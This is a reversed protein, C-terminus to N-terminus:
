SALRGLHKRRLHGKEALWLLTDRLTDELPRAHVGLDLTTSTTDFRTDRLALEIAERDAPLRRDGPLVRNVREVAFAAPRLALGPLEAHPLRRGTLKEITGFLLKGDVHHGPVVYRRPGKGPEITAAVVEAVERVDVYHAGGKRPWVPNRGSAIWTLLEANTGFYPDHPGWVGGPYVSVVPSGDAQHRRVLVESARKSAAYPLDVDGLPLDPGTGGRRTLAVTSSVHVVPDLGRAVAGGVVLETARENTGLVEDARAPDLSFVAAAHVVADMGDLARQVDREDLVDGIVLDTVAVRLPALSTAVQEPRRVLMRVEHGRDILAAVVFAGVYGTGGTVLVKM